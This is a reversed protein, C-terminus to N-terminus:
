LTLSPAVAPSRGAAWLTIWGAGIFVMAALFTIILRRRVAQGAQQRGQLSLIEDAM